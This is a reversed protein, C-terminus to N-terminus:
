LYEEIIGLVVYPLLGGYDSDDLATLQDRKLAAEKIDSKLQDRMEPYNGLGENRIDLYFRTLFRFDGMWIFATNYKEMKIFAADSVFITPDEAFGDFRNVDLPAEPFKRGRYLLKSVILSNTERCSSCMYLRVEVEISFPLKDSRSDQIRAYTLTIPFWDHIILAM